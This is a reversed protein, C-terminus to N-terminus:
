SVNPDAPQRAKTGHVPCDPNGCDGSTILVVLRISDLAAILAGIEEATKEPGQELAAGLRSNAALLTNALMARIEEKM